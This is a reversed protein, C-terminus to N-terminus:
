NFLYVLFNFSAAIRHLLHQAFLMETQKGTRRNGNTKMREEREKEKEM